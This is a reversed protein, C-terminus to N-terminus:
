SYLLMEAKQIIYVRHCHNNSSWQFFLHSCSHEENATFLMVTKQIIYVRHCHNNSSWQFFLHSCSHEENATCYCWQNKKYSTFAIVITIVPDSSSCIVAHINRTVQKTCCLNFTGQHFVLSDSFSSNYASRERNLTTYLTCTIEYCYKKPMETLPPFTCHSAGVWSVLDSWLM